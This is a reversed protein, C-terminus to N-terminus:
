PVLGDRIKDFYARGFAVRQGETPDNVTEYGVIRNVLAPRHSTVYHRFESLGSHGGTVLVQELGTLDDCVAAFFEHVHRVDSNHQPTSKGSARILHSHHSDHNLRTIQAKHSDITIVARSYVPESPM